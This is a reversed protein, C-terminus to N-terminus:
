SPSGAVPYTVRQQKGFLIKYLSSIDVVRTLYSKPINKTHMRVPRVGKATLRTAQANKFKSIDNMKKGPKNGYFLFSQISLDARSYWVWVICGSPKNQLQVNIETRNRKSTIASSKLQVFRTIGGTSLIVDYGNNDIESSAIEIQPLNEKWAYQILASLFIHEISKEIYISNSSIDQPM